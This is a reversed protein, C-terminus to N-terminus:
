EAKGKWHDKAELEKRQEVLDDAFDAVQKDLRRVKTQLSQNKIKLDNCECKAIKEYAKAKSCDVRLHHM